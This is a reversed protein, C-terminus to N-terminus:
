GPASRLRWDGPSGLVHLLCKSGEDRDCRDGTRKYRGRCACLAAYGCAHRGSKDAAGDDAPRDRGATRGIATRHIYLVTRGGATQNAFAEPVTVAPAEAPDLDAVSRLQPAFIKADRIQFGASRDAPNQKQFTM